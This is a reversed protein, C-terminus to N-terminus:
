YTSAIVRMEKERGMRGGEKEWVRGREREAKTKRWDRKGESQPKILV